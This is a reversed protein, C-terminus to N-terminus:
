RACNARGASLCLTSAAGDQTAALRVQPLASGEIGLYHFCAGGSKQCLPLLAALGLSHRAIAFLDICVGAAASAAGLQEYFAASAASPTAHGDQRRQQEEQYAPHPSGGAPGDIHDATTGLGTNPPTGLFCAVKCPGLAITAEAAHSSAGERKPAQQPQM